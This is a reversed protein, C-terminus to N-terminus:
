AKTWLLQGVPGSIKETLNDGTRKEEQEVQGHVERM